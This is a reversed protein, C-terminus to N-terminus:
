RYKDDFKGGEIPFYIDASDEEIEKKVDLLRKKKNRTMDWNLISPGHGQFYVLSISVNNM